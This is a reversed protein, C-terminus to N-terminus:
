PFCFRNVLGYAAMGAYLPHNVVGIGRIFTALVAGTTDSELNELTMRAIFAADEFVTFGMGVAIGVFVYDVARTTQTCYTCILVVGLIKLAEEDVPAFGAASVWQLHVKALIDFLQNNFLVAPGTCAAGWLLGFQTGPHKRLGLVSLLIWVMGHVLAAILSAPVYALGLQFHVTCALSVATLLPFLLKM